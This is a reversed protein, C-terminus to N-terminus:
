MNMKKRLHRRTTMYVMQVMQMTLRAPFSIVSPYSKDYLSVNVNIIKHIEQLNKIKNGFKERSVHLHILIIVKAEM